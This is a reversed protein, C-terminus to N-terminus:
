NRRLAGSVRGSAWFKRIDTAMEKAKPLEALAKQMQADGELLVELATEQGYAATCLEFRIQDKVFTSWDTDARDVNIKIDKHDALFKKFVPLMKDTVQYDTPALRHEHDAPKEVKWSEYGPIRGAALERSFAFVPELWVRQLEFFKAPIKAVVDPNIGDGGYVPRGADTHKEEPHHLQLEEKDGRQLYYDYFSRNSYDRQILRGSPTYYKGATLTLGSGDQLTYVSQVLGKGFSNEGVLRARDHDQLAGAVIEAASATGRNILVVMPVDDPSTNTAAVDQSPFVSPRGHMSVILQGSYVFDNVVKVAQDVLGGRNGRLDLVLSTMGQQHLQQLAKKTEAATTTNFGRDLNIYGVGNGIMFYNQISPLPVYDRVVKFTIPHDVGLRAVTVSVPTGEPGLLKNSVQTSNWNETSQGDIATIQDGYLIGAKYAPTGFFPAVIYVKGNRQAITSGIGSYRSRQQNQFEAWEKPDLYSSHPDLTRLMGQISAKTMKEADVQGAYNAKALLLAKDFSDEIKEQESDDNDNGLVTREPSHAGAFTLLAMVALLLLLLRSKRRM